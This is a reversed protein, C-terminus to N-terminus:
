VTFKNGEVLVDSHAPSSSTGPFSDYSSRYFGFEVLNVVM